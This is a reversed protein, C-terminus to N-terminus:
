NQGNLVEKNLKKFQERVDTYNMVDYLVVEDNTEMWVRAGCSLPKRDRPDIFTMEGKCELSHAYLTFKDHKVTYTPLYLNMDKIKNNKIIHHRNVHVIKKNGKPLM